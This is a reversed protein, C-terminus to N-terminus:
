DALDCVYVDQAYMKWDLVCTLDIQDGKEYNLIRVDDSTLVTSSGDLTLAFESSISGENGVSRKEISTIEGSQNHMVWYAPNFPIFSLVTILLVIVTLIAAFVKVVDNMMDFTTESYTSVRHKKRSTAISYLVVTVLALIALIIFLAIFGPRLM